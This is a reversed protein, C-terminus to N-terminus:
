QPPLEQRDTRGSDVIDKILKIVAIAEATNVKGRAMDAMAALDELAEPM